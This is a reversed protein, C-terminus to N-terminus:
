VAIQHNYSQSRSLAHVKRALLRYARKVHASTANRSLGLVAYHDQSGNIEFASSSVVLTRRRRPRTTPWTSATPNTSDVASSFGFGYGYGTGSSGNIPVPGVLLLHSQMIAWANTKGWKGTRGKTRLNTKARQPHSLPNSTDSTTDESSLFSSEMQAPGQPEPNSREKKKNSASPQM